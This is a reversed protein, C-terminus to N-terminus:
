DLVGEGSEEEGAGARCQGTCGAVREGECKLGPAKGAPVVETKLIRASIGHPKLGRRLRAEVQQGVAKAMTDELGPMHSLLSRGLSTASPDSLQQPWRFRDM